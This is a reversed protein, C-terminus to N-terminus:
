WRIPEDLLGDPWLNRLEEITSFSDTTITSPFDRLSNKSEIITAKLSVDDTELARMFQIDMESFKKNRETRYTKLFRNISKEKNISWSM